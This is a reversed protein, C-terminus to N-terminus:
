FPPPGSDEEASSSRSKNPDDASHGAATTTKMPPMIYTYPYSLYVHGTPSILMIAGPPHRPDDSVRHTWNGEHKLRHDHECKAALNVDSTVGAPWSIVHDLHCKAAPRPCNPTRCTVDRARVHDALPGPPRYTTRGYDLLYGSVPDVILRRWTSGAAFALDRATAATVPGHGALEGPEDDMGLLTTLPIIVQVQARIESRSTWTRVLEGNEETGPGTEPGASADADPVVTSGPVAEGPRVSHAVSGSESLGEAGVPGGPHLPGDSSVPGVPGVKEGSRVSAAANPDVASRGAFYPLLPPLPAKPDDPGRRIDGTNPDVDPVLTATDTDAPVAQSLTRGDPLHGRLILDTLVDARLENLTRKAGAQRAARAYTDIVNYAALAEPAGLYAYLEGTGEGRHTRHSVYRGKVNDKTHRDAYDPDVRNIARHLCERLNEPAQDSARKLIHEELLGAVARAMEEGAEPSAGAQLALRYHDQTLPMGVEGIIQARTLDLAGRSLAELTRPFRTGLAVATEVMRRAESPRVRLRLMLEARTTDGRDLDRISRGMRKAEAQASPPACRPLMYESDYLEKILKLREAELHSIQETVGGIREVLRFGYTDEVPGAGLVTGATRAEASPAVSQGSAADSTTSTPGRDAMQGPGDSSDSPSLFYRLPLRDSDGSRYGRHRLMCGLTTIGFGRWLLGDM